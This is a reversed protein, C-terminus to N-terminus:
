DMNAATAQTKVNTLMLQAGPILVQLVNNFHWQYPYSISVQTGLLNVPTTPGVNEQVAFDRQITLVLMGTCGSANSYVWTFGPGGGNQGAAWKLGCDPINATLLYSDVVSRIADVSPPSSACLSCLDNTPQAAGFRAGERLANNLEQKLNFAAGFDYIGVVLIM